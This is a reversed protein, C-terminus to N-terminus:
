QAKASLGDDVALEAGNVFRADDSLLFAIAGAVDTAKGMRGHPYGAGVLELGAEVSPLAGAAVAAELPGRALPTDIPGPHVSNVRVRWGNQAFELAATKSVLRVAGKSAGYAAFGPQGGLGYISSLNVISAGHEGASEAMLPAFTRMGLFVGENNIANLRRYEDLTTEVLPKMLIVGANNVLGHLAGFRDRVRTLVDSWAQESTVDLSLYEAGCAAAVDAGANGVDTAVLTGGREAVLRCTASGIGGGCGTVLVIKSELQM